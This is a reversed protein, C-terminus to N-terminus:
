AIRAAKFHYVANGLLEKRERLILAALGSLM